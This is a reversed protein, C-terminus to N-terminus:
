EIGSDKGDWLGLFIGSMDWQGSDVKDTLLVVTLNRAVIYQIDTARINHTKTYITYPKIDLYCEIM